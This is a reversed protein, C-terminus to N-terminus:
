DRGLPRTFKKQFGSMYGKIFFLGTAVNMFFAYIEVHDRLEIILSTRLNFLLFTNINIFM